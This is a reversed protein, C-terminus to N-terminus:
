SEPGKFLYYTYYGTFILDGTGGMPPLFTVRDIAYLYYFLGAVATKGIIGLVIIGKHKPPDSAIIFYGIGFIGVAVFFVSNLYIKYFDVTEFGYMMYFYFKPMTLAPVTYCFNWIGAIVFFQKWNSLSWIGPNLRKISKEM